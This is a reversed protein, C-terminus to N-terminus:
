DQKKKTRGKTGGIGVSWAKKLEQECQRDELLAAEWRQQELRQVKM